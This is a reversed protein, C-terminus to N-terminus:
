AVQGATRPAVRKTPKTAAAAVNAPAPRRVAPTPAQAVSLLKIAAKEMEIAYDTIKGRFYRHFILSIVAIVIGVATTYLATKIGGALETPSGVGKDTIVAFVEIMGVVTGLLGLLPAITAITGLAIMFRDMLHAVHRGSEEINEKMVHRPQNMSELGTALVRGLMSGERIKEIHARTVKGSRALKQATAAIGEPIVKDKRLTLSLSVIAAIAVFSCIILPISMMGMAGIFDGM